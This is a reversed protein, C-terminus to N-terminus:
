IVRKNQEQCHCFPFSCCPQLWPKWVSNWFSFQSPVKTLSSRHHEVSDKAISLIRRQEASNVALARRESPDLAINYVLPPNHKVIHKGYCMCVFPCEYTGPKYKPTYYYVKWVHKEDEVWRLGHLMTGCYHYLIKHPSQSVEKKLLPLIDHGDIISVTQPLRARAVSHITKFIDLQSTVSTINQGAPIRGPWRILAPVRIGGEMAGHGKGGHFIGNSGGEPQGKLNREELHGGNDSTFYVFTNDQQGIKQLHTLIQGVAADMELVSDGYKGHQSKGAWEPANFHALM